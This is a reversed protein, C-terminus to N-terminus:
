IPDLDQGYPGWDKRFNSIVYIILYIFCFYLIMLFSVQRVITYYADLAGYYRRPVGSPLKVEAQLRVKVLDTPNAM